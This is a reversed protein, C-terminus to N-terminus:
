KTQGQGLKMKVSVDQVGRPNKHLKMISAKIKHAEEESRKAREDARSELMVFAM